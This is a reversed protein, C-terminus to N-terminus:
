WCYLNRCLSWIPLTLDAARQLFTREWAQSKRTSLRAKWTIEKILGELRQYYFPQMRTVEGKPWGIVHYQSEKWCRLNERYPISTNVRGGVTTYLRPKGFKPEENWQNSWRINYHRLFTWNAAFTGDAQYFAKTWKTHEENLYKNQIRGIQIISAECRIFLKVCDKGIQLSSRPM